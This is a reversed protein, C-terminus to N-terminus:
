WGYRGKREGVAWGEMRKFRLQTALTRCDEAFADM